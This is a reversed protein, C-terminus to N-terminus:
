APGEPISDAGASLSATEICEFLLQIAAATIAMLVGAFVVDSLFHGGQAMRVFGAATGVVVGAAVLRRGLGPFLFAAAFLVIYASSAEGSVFSCNYECKGRNPPFPPAYDARGGFEIVDRPRPRGWHDKFGINTVVLPGIVFCLALFLWRNFRLGLWANARREAVVLGVLTLACVGYFFLNFLLRLDDFLPTASSVFRRDGLYLHRTVWLDLSPFAIFFLAAGIGVGVAGRLMGQASISKRAAAGRISSQDDRDFDLIGASM